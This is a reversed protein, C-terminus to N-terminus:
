GAPAPRVVVSELNAKVERADFAKREAAPKAGKHMLISASAEFETEPTSTSSMMAGRPYWYYPGWGHWGGFDHRYRTEATTSEDVLEFWDYGQQLTLEAARYLLYNEVTQRPTISNGSFNIRYRNSEIRQESFGQGHRTPQYPTATACAAVTAALAVLCSRFALRIPRM